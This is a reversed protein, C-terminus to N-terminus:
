PHTCEPYGITHCREPNHCQSHVLMHMHVHKHTNLEPPHQRQRQVPQRVQAVCAWNIFVHLVHLFMHFASKCVHMCVYTSVQALGSLLKGQDWSHPATLPPLRPQALAAAVLSPTLGSLPTRLAASIAALQAHVARVVEQSCPTGALWPLCILLPMLVTLPSAEAAPHSLSSHRTLPVRTDAAAVCALLCLRCYCVADWCCSAMTSYVWM